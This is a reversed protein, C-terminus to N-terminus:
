KPLSQRLKFFGSITKMLLLVNSCWITLWVLNSAGLLEIPIAGFFFFRPRVLWSYPTHLANRVMAIALVSVYLLIFLSGGWIDLWPPSQSMLTITVISVVVQDCFSDTFSGRQSDVGQFRALPGDLGDLLVHLLLFFIAWWPHSLLWCPVFLVGSILSVLTIHDPIFRTRTLFRLVPDLWEGRLRQGFEM